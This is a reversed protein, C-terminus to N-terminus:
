AKGETKQVFLGRLERTGAISSLFVTLASLPMFIAAYLPDVKGFLAATGGVINYLLSFGLNRYLVKMTERAVVVMEYISQVGPKSVYADSARMSVEMGGHVAVGVYAASLAIADNAGDGAMMATPHNQMIESKTEPSARSITKHEPIDLEKAVRAVASATDGSLVFVDLGLRRLLDLAPKADDRVKDGLAAHAIAKGDKYLSVRTSGEPGRVTEDSQRLEYLHGGIKGSVGRGTTEAFNEVEPLAWPRSGFYRVIAKAVPHNSRSELAVAAQSTEQLSIGDVLNWELVDFHGTTLTGTKDLFVQTVHNLRELVDAGKILMGNRAARGISVSMALPTALALACPCTIIVMALARNLGEQFGALYVGWAFVGFALAVVGAVFYRSVRDTMTVIPAKRHVGDEVAKLIQGLRTAYGSANVRLELVSGENVTGAYVPRGEEIAILDSEGTLLACNLKSKGRVVIGDIPIPESPRVEIVDGPRLFDVSVEELAGDAKRRRVVSPTLFHLLKSSQLANQQARRLVYRSSLLFFVLGSLSDFYMHDSGVLLNYFSALGGAIIGVVIPIDISISRLRFATLADKYFPTASFLLVPLFLGFSIWNFLQALQGIAGGYISVALLMINGHATGAIAIRILMMRNERKQLAEQEGSRVPHPRYGLRHFERAAKAFSGQPNLRVVATSQSMDLSVSFVDDVFQPLKELLWICAACHVGELYFTMQSYGEPSDISYLKRFEPDDLYAYTHNLEAAPIAKRFFAGANKLAYYETLGREHLIGYM